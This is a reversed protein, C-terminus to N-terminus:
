SDYKGILYELFSKFNGKFENKFQEELDGQQERYMIYTMFYANNPLFEGNKINEVRLQNHLSLTDVMDLILNINGQKLKQKQHMPYAEILNYLSDLQKAGRLMHKSVKKIDALSNLYKVVEEANVGYKYNMFEIAGNDGIFTALNENFDADDKIYLTSHTLEHIILRALDGESKYLMNSMIPDDFFGLTSWANVESISVDYGELVLRAKEKEAKKKDFFGKYGLNGLIPYHWQYAEMHFPPSASIVWLVPEGNQNFVSKYSDSDKLGLSDIAYDRVEQIFLLKSKLSDPFDPSDLFSEVSEANRIIRLQGVGQNLGYLIINCQTFCFVIVLLVIIVIAKRM